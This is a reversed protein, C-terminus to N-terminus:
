VFFGGAQGMWYVAGQAFVVAHQGLCGCNTGVQRISFTFPPGVFQAVYAAQDTLILVYDKGQVAATIKNGTDLRFTGATNTATPTYVNLTEQNTFRIFMPDQTTADTM